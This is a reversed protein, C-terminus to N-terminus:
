TYKTHPNWMHLISNPSRISLKHLVPHCQPNAIMLERDNHCYCNRCPRCKIGPNCKNTLPLLYRILSKSTHVTLKLLDPFCDTDHHLLDTAELKLCVRISIFSSCWTDKTHIYHLPKTLEYEGTHKLAMNWSLWANGINRLKMNWILWM